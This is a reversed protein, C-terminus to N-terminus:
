YFPYIYMVFIIDIVPSLIFTAVYFSFAYTHGVRVYLADLTFSM